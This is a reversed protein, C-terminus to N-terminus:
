LKKLKVCLENIKRLEGRPIGWDMRIQSSLESIKNIIEEKTKEPLNNARCTSEEDLHKKYLEVYYGDIIVEGLLTIEGNPKNLEELQSIIDKIKM